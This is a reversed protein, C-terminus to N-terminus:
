DAFYLNEFVDTCNLKKGDSVINIGDEIHIWGETGDERHILVWNKNDTLPFIVTEQSPKMLITKSSLDMETFATIEEKLTVPSKDEWQYTIPSYLDEEVLHLKGEGNLKWTFVTTWYQLM